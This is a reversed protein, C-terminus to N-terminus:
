SKHGNIRRVANNYHEEEIEIGLARRNKRLAAVVTTGSGAFPDVIL